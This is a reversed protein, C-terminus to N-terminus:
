SRVASESIRWEQETLFLESNVQMIPSVGLYGSAKKGAM